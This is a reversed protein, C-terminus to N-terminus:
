LFSMVLNLLSILSLVNGQVKACENCCQYPYKVILPTDYINYEEPQDYGRIATCRESAVSKPMWIGGEHSWTIWSGEQEQSRSAAEKEQTRSSQYLYHSGGKAYAVCEDCEITNQSEDYDNKLFCEYTTAKWVWSKCELNLELETLAPLSNTRVITRTVPM